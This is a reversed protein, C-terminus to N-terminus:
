GDEGIAALAAAPDTFWEFRLAKAMASPGSVVSIISSRRVAPGAPRSAM